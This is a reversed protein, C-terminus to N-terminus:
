SAAVRPGPGAGRLRDAAIRFVDELAAFNAEQSHAEALRRAEGGMTGRREPDLLRTLRDTLASVDGPEIVFGSRGEEILEGSGSVNTTVVPLGSALAELVVNAGADHWTPFVFADAVTYATTSPRIDGPFLFLEERGLRRARRLAEKLQSGIGRGATLVRLEVGRDAIRAAAEMLEWLGKRRYNHGVFLLCLADEPIDWQRRAEARERARREPSFEATDVGNYVLHLREDPVAYSERIERVMYRSLAIVEPPPDRQLYFARERRLDARVPPTTRALQRVARSIPNRVSRLNQRGQETGYGPRLLNVRAGEYRRAREPNALFVDLDLGAVHNRLERPPLSALAHLRIGEPVALDPPQKLATLFHVEHGQGSLWLGLRWLYRQQGSAAAAPKRIDIGIRMPQHQDSEVDGGQGVEEQKM